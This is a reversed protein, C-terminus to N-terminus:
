SFIYQLFFIKFFGFWLMMILLFFLGGLGSSEMRSAYNVTDGFLCYRPMKLGVVGAVCPGKLLCFIYQSVNKKTVDTDEKGKANSPVYITITFLLSDEIKSNEVQVYKKIRHFVSKQVVVESSILM